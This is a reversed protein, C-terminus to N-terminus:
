WLDEDTLDLWDNEMDIRKQKQRKRFSFYDAWAFIVIAVNLVILLLFLFALIAHSTAFAGIAFLYGSAATAASLSILTPLNRMEIKM